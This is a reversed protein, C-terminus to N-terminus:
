RLLLLGVTTAAAAVGAVMSNLVGHVLDPRSPVVPMRGICDPDVGGWGRAPVTAATASAVAPAAEAGDLLHLFDDRAMDALDGGVICLDFTRRQVLRLAALGSDRFHVELCGAAAAAALDAYREIHPDVVLLRPVHTAPVGAVTAPTCNADIMQMTAGMLFSFFLSSFLSSFWWFVLLGRDPLVLVGSSPSFGGHM